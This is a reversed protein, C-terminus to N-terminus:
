REMRKRTLTWDERDARLWFQVRSEDVSQNFKLQSDHDTDHATFELSLVINATRLHGVSRGERFFDRDGIGVFLLRTTRALEAADLKTQCRTLEPLANVEDVLDLAAINRTFINGGDFLAHAFRRFRTRM